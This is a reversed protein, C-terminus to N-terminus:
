FVTEEKFVPEEKFVTEEFGRNFNPAELDRVVELFYGGRTIHLAKITQSTFVKKRNAEKAISGQGEALSHSM